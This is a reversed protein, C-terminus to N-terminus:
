SQERKQQTARGWCHDQNSASHTQRHRGKEHGICFWGRGSGAPPEVHSQTTTIQQGSNRARHRDGHGQTQGQASRFCPVTGWVIYTRDIPADASGTDLVVGFLENTERVVVYTHGDGVNFNAIVIRVREPLRAANRGFPLIRAVSKQILDITALKAPTDSEFARECKFPLKLAAARVDSKRRQIRDFLVDGVANEAERAAGGM